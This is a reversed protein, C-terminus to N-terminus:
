NWFVSELCAPKKLKLEVKSKRMADLKNDFIKHLMYSRNQQGDGNKENNVLRVDIRNRLKKM